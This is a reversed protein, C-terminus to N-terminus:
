ATFLAAAALIVVLFGFTIERHSSIVVVRRAASLQAPVIAVPVLAVTLLAADVPLWLFAPIIALMAMAGIFSFKMNAKSNGSQLVVDSFLRYRYVLLAFSLFSVYSAVPLFEETYLYAIIHRLVFYAFLFAAVAAIDVVTQIKAFVSSLDQPRRIRVESLAAFATSQTARWIADRVALVWVMAIAYYGFSTPDMLAGVIFRDGQAAFFGLTSSIMLWRGFRWIERVARAELQLGMRPGRLAAHSLVVSASQGVIAGVLLAWASPALLAFGIMAVTGIFQGTLDVLTLRGIQMRKESLAINMSKLGLLLLVGSSAMILLPLEPDAYVSGGGIVGHAQLAGLLTGLAVLLVALLAMQLVQLTWATRLFAPDSGRDSRIVGPRIGLDGMMVLGTHLTFVIAMAGFAEPVLLRTLVLNSGLRLVIAVGYSGLRWASSVAARHSLSAPDRLAAIRQRVALVSHDWRAHLTM